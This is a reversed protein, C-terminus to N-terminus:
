AATSHSSSMELAIMLIAAWSVTRLHRLTSLTKARRVARVRVHYTSPRAKALEIRTDACHLAEFRAEIQIEVSSGLLGAWIAAAYELVIQRQQGLTTGTNGGIPAVPTEDKFGVGPPDVSIVSITASYGPSSRLLICCSAVVISSLRFRNRASPRQIRRTRNTRCNRM